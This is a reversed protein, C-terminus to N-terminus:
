TSQYINELIIIPTTQDALWADTEISAYSFTAASHENNSYIHM